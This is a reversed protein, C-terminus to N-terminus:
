NLALEEFYEQVEKDSQGTAQAITSRLSSLRFQGDTTYRWDKPMNNLLDLYTDCLAKLMTPAAAILKANEKNLEFDQPNSHYGFNCNCVHEYYKDGEKKAIVATLNFGDVHWEGPTIKLERM